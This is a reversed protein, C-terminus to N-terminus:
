GEVESLAPEKNQKQWVLEGKKKYEKTQYVTVLFGEGNLVKVVVVLIDYGSVKKAFLLITTDTVSRRIDDPSALTNKVERIGFRLERHKIKKIKKWYSRSTRIRRGLVDKVEFLIDAPIIDESM